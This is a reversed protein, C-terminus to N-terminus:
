FQRMETREFNLSQWPYWVNIINKFPIELRKEGIDVNCHLREQDQTGTGGQPHLGENITILLTLVLLPLTLRIRVELNVHVDISRHCFSLFTARCTM